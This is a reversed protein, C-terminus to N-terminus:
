MFNNKKPLSGWLISVAGSPVIQPVNLNVKGAEVSKLWGIAGGIQKETNGDYRISRLEPINRPNIRSCLHYLMIDIVYMKIQPNRNDGKAWYSTDTPLKDSFYYTTGTFNPNV